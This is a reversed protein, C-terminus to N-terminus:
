SRGYVPVIGGRAVLNQPSALFAITKAVEETKAWVSADAHPMAARNARTDMISPAIANVWIGENAVEEALAITIAAVAAKSSAYAIMGAGHRPELAPMATVNVIRGKGGPGVPNSRRIAKVAERCSLFCSSANTKMLAEFDKMSTDGISSMTFGGASHISAWLAPLEAYFRSVAAEDGLDIGGVLKLEASRLVGLSGPKDANRCPVHVIAGAELLAAVVAGGLEGTGGTVVVHRGEYGLEM